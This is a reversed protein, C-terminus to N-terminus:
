DFLKTQIFESEHKLLWSKKDLGGAFGTLNGNSGIVRHCPIIISIKNKGNANGVARLSKTNGLVKAIDLYSKTSGFPIKLLENWVLKQFDTGQIDLKLDFEKRNGKFYEDLQNVATQLIDPIKGHPLEKKVFYLGCIGNPTASIEIIGIPSKYYAKCVTTEM